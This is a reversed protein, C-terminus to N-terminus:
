IHILSLGMIAADARENTFRGFEPILVLVVTREGDPFRVTLANFDSDILSPGFGAEESEPQTLTGLAALSAQLAPALCADPAIVCATTEAVEGPAEDKNVVVLYAETGLVGQIDNFEEVLEPKYAEPLFPASFNEASAIAYSAELLPGYSGGDIPTLAAQAPLAAFAAWGMLSLSLGLNQIRRGRGLCLM